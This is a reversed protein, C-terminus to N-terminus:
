TDFKESGAAESGSGSAAPPALSALSRGFFKLRTYENM